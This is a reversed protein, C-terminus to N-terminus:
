DPKIGAERVITGWRAHDAKLLEAFKEASGGLPENGETSLKAIVDPQKLIKEVEANISTVISAPLKAPGVLGYWSEAVFDKYGGEVVTPVGPLAAIRKASTVALARL